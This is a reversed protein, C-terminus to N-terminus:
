NWLKELNVSLSRARYAANDRRSAMAWLNMSMAVDNTLWRRGGASVSWGNGADGFLRGSVQASSYINWDDASWEGKLGVYATGSGEEPSWYSPANFEADRFEIGLYPKLSRGLPRWATDLNLSGTIITNKDSISYHNLRGTLRGISFDKWGVAGVHFASLGLNLANPNIALRGWNIRGLHLFTQDDNLSLVVNGFLTRDKGTPTSVEFKPKLPMNLDHYRLTLDQQDAQVGPLEDRVKSTEVEYIQAGSEGRWRHNLTAFRREEDSSDSSGGLTITTKPRLERGTLVLGSLADANGPERVLVEQYLPAAIDDRGSWRQINALGINAANAHKGATLSEYITSAEGLRGTWALSNAVMLQVGEDVKGQNMLALGSSGVGKYDGTAYLDAVAQEEPKLKPLDVGPLETSGVPPIYKFPAFQNLGGLAPAGGPYDQATSPLVIKDNSFGIVPVGMCVILPLFNKFIQVSKKKSKSAVHGCSKFNLKSM